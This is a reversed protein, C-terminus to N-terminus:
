MACTSMCFFIHRGRLFGEVPIQRFAPRGIDGALERCGRLRDTPDSVGLPDGDQGMRGPHFVAAVAKAAADGRQFVGTEVADLDMVTGVAFGLGHAIEFQRLAETQEDGAAAIEVPDCFGINLDPVPAAIKFDIGAKEFREFGRRGPSLVGADAVGSKECKM